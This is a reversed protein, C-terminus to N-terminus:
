QDVLTVSLCVSPLVNRAVCLAYHAVTWRDTQRDCQVSYICSRSLSLYLFWWWLCVRLRTLNYQITRVLVLILLGGLTIESLQRERFWVVNKLTQWMSVSAYLCVCLCVFKWCFEVYYMGGWRLVFFESNRNIIIIISQEVLCDRKLTGVTTV